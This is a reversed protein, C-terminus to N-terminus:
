GCWVRAIRGNADIDFNIREPSFDMTVAEGPQIIRTPRGFDAGILASVPRGVWDSLASAGCEDAGGLGPFETGQTPACGIVLILVFLYRM